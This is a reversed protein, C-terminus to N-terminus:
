AVIINIAMFNQTHIGGIKHDPTKERIRSTYARAKCILVVAGGGGAILFLKSFILYKIKM